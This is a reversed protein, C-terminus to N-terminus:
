GSKSRAAPVSSRQPPALRAAPDSWEPYRNLFRSVRRLGYAEIYAQIEARFKTMRPIYYELPYAVDETLILTRDIYHDLMAFYYFLTDFCDRIFMRKPDSDDGGPTLATTVDEDTITVREGDIDYERRDYDIMLLAPWAEGDTQMEDNLEKGVEAQRWRLDRERQQRGDRLEARLKYGALFVGAAAAIWAAAQLVQMVVPVPHAVMRVEPFATPPVM